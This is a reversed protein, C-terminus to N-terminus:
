EVTGQQAATTDTKEDKDREGVIRPKERFLFRRTAQIDAFPNDIGRM